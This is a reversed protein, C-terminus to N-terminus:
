NVLNYMNNWCLLIPQVPNLPFKPTVAYIACLVTPPLDDDRKKKKIGAM